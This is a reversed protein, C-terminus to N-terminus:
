WIMYKEKVADLCLNYYDTYDFVFHEGDRCLYARNDSTVVLDYPFNEVYKLTDYMQNIALQRYTTDINM